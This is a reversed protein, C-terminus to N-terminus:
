AVFPRSLAHAVWDGSQVWRGYNRSSTRELGAQMSLLNGITIANVQPDAGNPIRSDLLTGIPQDPGELLGRDIAIGVLAAILSKSVSKVNVPADLGRGCFSEAFAVEGNRAVILTNLRELSRAQSVVDSLRATDFGSDAKAPALAVAYLLLL